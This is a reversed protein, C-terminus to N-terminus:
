FLQSRFGELTSNLVVSAPLDNWERITRPFFSKQRYLTRCAPLHFMLPHTLRTTRKLPTAVPESRTNIIVLKNVYKYMMILRARRRREQLSSWCLHNLMDEVSSTQRHRNVVWRAARRQVAELKNIDKANYPDWVTSAYELLPRVLTRYAQQKISQSGIKLNRRLFGLSRNAKNTTSTIHSDWCLDNTITIGLYKVEKTPLLAQGRLKYVFERINASSKRTIHLTQCKDPHFSM